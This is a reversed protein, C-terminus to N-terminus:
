FIVRQHLQLELFSYAASLRWWELLQYTAAIEVGYSEGFAENALRSTARLPAGPLSPDSAVSVTESTRLRDYINYFTAVDVSFKRHPQARWGAELALVEESRFDNNGQATFFSPPGGNLLGHLTIDDEARSPTRVARSVSGWFTHDERPTWLLRASPLAEFGTFETREFKSGFIAHLRDPVLTLDDQVFVNVYDIVRDRSAFSTFYSDKMQDFSARYGLGWIIQNRKLLPFRHHFDVDVTHRTEELYSTERHTTDFCAQLNMESEEGLSRVWRGLVNGGWIREHKESVNFFPPTAVPQYVTQDLEGGYLDGQVTLRDNEPPEWDFRFGGRAMQYRDNAKTGDPLVSSDHANYKGYVRYFSNEGSRGGYRAAALATEETGGGASVLTGQTASASKTLINIVGNVANAGWLTAGPGRVVEIRDIDELMTDQVDWYVGSFLPTYSSRGDMLVLLKNAFLDNFGRSTVAWNHADVRGVEMGPSLRLAEPISTVGSRQIEEGSIVHVAAPASSLKESHRSVSTVQVNLLQELSMTTLDAVPAPALAEGAIARGPVTLAVLALLRFLRLRAPPYGSSRLTLSPKM